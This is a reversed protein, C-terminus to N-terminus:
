SEGVPRLHPWTHRGVKAVIQSPAHAVPVMEALGCARLVDLAAWGTSVTMGARDSLEPMTPACGDAEDLLALLAGLLDLPEGVLVPLRTGAVAPHPAFTFM